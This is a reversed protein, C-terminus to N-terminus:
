AILALGQCHTRDNNLTLIQKRNKGSTYSIHIWVSGGNRYELLLQDFPILDKIEQALEYFKQRDGPAGRVKSFSIDVAQGLEHQSIGNARSVASGAPRYCSNIKFGLYAYKAKLPEIVNLCLHKLNCAIELDKLGHATGGYPFPGDKLLDTIKYNTSIQTSPTIQTFDCIASAQVVPAPPKTDRTQEVVPPSEIQAAKAAGEPTNELNLMQKETRDVVHPVEFDAAFPPASSASVSVGSNWNIVGADIAASSAQVNFSGGAKINFSGGSTMNTDGGTELYTNGGVAVQANGQIAIAADGVVNVSMSGAITIHGSGEIYFLGDQEIIKIDTGTTKMVVTGDPYYEIFSGSKHQINIREAEPTDDFEMAHGSESYYVHNYPYQAAYAPKPQDWTRGGVVPIKTTLNEEKDGLNTKNLRQSRSLRPTDQEGQFDKLPYKGKPDVFGKLSAANAQAQKKAEPMTSPDYKTNDKAESQNTGRDVAPQKLNDATPLENTTHGSVSKYGLKYYEDTGSGYADRTVVGSLFKPICYRGQNHQVAFLGALKEPPTNDDVYGKNVLYKYNGRVYKDMVDEQVSPTSLFAQHSTIGDKGTWIEPMVIVSNKGYQKWTGPKIYGLDELAAIGFQYKGSYGLTNVKKNDNGSERFGIAVKFKDYQEKTLTGIYKTSTELGASQVVAGTTTTLPTGASTTVATANPATFAAGKVEDETPAISDIDSLAGAGPVGAITGLMIPIQQHEDLFEVLVTTGEIPGVPAYGIGSNAASNISQLPIAWPLDETKLIARNDTHLGVVRVRCRGLMAPDQRDEVVGVYKQSTKM